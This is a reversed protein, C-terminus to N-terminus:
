IYKFLNLAIWSGMSSGIFVLEKNKKIKSNIIQKADNRGSHYIEKQLNEVLNETVQTNLSEFIRFWTKHM